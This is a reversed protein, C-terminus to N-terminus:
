DFKQNYATGKIKNVILQGVVVFQVPFFKQHQKLLILRNQSDAKNQKQANQIAEKFDKFPLIQNGIKM